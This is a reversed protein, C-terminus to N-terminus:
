WCPFLARIMIDVDRRRDKRLRTVHDHRGEPNHEEDPAHLQRVDYRAAASPADTVNRASAVPAMQPMGVQPRVPQVGVDAM